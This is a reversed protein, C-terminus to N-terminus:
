CECGGSTRGAGGTTGADTTCTGAVTAVLRTALPEWQAYAGPYGSNQVAQAAETLPMAQWGDVHVLAAHFATAAYVSDILQERTTTNM